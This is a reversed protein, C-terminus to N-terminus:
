QHLKVEMLEVTVNGLYPIKSTVKVPFRKNDNSVWINIEGQSVFMGSTSIHPRTQITEWAVQEGNVELNLVEKKLIEMKVKTIKLDDFVNMTFSSGVVVDTKYSRNFYIASLIDQFDSPLHPTYGSTNKWKADKRKVGAKDTNGSISKRKWSAIKNQHDYEVTHHRHFFGENLYKESYYPKKEIPDWFSIVTDKVPFIANVFSTGHAETKLIMCRKGKFTLEAPISMTSYGITMLGYRIKYKLSEGVQFAPEAFVSTTFLVFLLFRRMDIRM